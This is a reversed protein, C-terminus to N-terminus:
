ESTSVHGAADRRLRWRKTEADQEATGDDRLMELITRSIHGEHRIHGSYIGLARGIDANTLGSHEEVLIELVAAKLEALALQARRYAAPYTM